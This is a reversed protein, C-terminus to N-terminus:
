PCSGQMWVLWVASIAMQDGLPVQAYFLAKARSSGGSGGCTPTRLTDASAEAGTCCTAAVVTPPAESKSAGRGRNAARVAWLRETKSARSTSPLSPHTTAPESAPQQSPAQSYPLSTAAGM